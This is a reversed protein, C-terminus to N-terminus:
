QYFIDAEILNSSQGVIDPLLVRDQQLPRVLHVSAYPKGTFGRDVLRPQELVVLANGGARPPLIRVGRGVGEAVAWQLRESLPELM